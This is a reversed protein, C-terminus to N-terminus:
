VRGRMHRCRKMMYSLCAGKNSSEPEEFCVRMQRSRDREYRLCAQENPSEPEDYMNFVAKIQRIRNGYITFM